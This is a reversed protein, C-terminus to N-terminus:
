IHTISWDNIEIKYTKEPIEKMIKVLQKESAIGEGLVRNVTRPITKPGIVAGPRNPDDLYDSELMFTDLKKFAEKANDFTGIISPILGHTEECVPAFHKVVRSKQIGVKDAMGSIEDFTSSLSESHIIIGCDADKATELAFELIENSAIWEQPSVPYHPRGVEGIATAKQETVLRAALEIGKLMLEKARGISKIENIRSPHVGLAAFIQVGTRERADKIMRLLIEYEKEIDTVTKINLVPKSVIMAAKGGAREFEKIADAGKGLPDLHFHNDYVPINETREM